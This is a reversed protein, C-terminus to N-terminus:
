TDRQRDMIQRLSTLVPMVADLQAPPFKGALAVLDPNLSTIAKARFDRGAETIWVCKSRGDNPNAAVRILGHKALIALTHTMTTKPVQFARALDLPTRGDSVRVLHNLVTFQSVLIGGPLRAEFLATALQNIIGVENFFAFFRAADSTPDQDPM